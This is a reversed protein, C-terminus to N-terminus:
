PAAELHSQRTDHHNKLYDASKHITQKMAVGSSILNLIREEMDEEIMRHETVDHIVNIAGVIQHDLGRLPSVSSLITKIMGNMCKVHITENHTSKGERLALMLPSTSRRDQRFSRGDHTWWEFFDGYSDNDMPDVFEWIRSAEENTQCIRGAVDSIIVGVPLSDLVGSLKRGMALLEEYDRLRREKEALLEATRRASAYIGVKIKLIDPDFPKSFYDIAGVEYGKKIYPDESYVATIFIVPINRCREIEKIRRATEFGDMEPMQIDLLIVSVGPTEELIQLAESGSTAFLLSYDAGLVADLALLNARKDDVALVVPRIDALNKMM